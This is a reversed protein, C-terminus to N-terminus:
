GFPRFRDAETLALERVWVAHEAATKEFAAPHHADSGFYFRCGCDKAIRYPRMIIDLERENYDTVPANLEIGLGLAAAKKFQDAYVDDPIGEFLRIHNEWQNEYGAALTCTMHALGMKRFPYKRELLRYLREVVLERRRKLDGWDAESITFDFMHLHTTPVIIFDFRDFHEEALGLRFEKDMDTECGFYMKVEPDEPLPLLQEVHAIDQPRYWESAGPVDADWLHDTICVESLGNERAYQLIREPTEEPESSCSSLWTHIHYDQLFHFTKDSSM